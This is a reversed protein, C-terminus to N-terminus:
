FDMEEGDGGEQRQERDPRDGRKNSRRLQYTFGLTFTRPRWQFEGESIFDDTITISQWRRTNLVDSVSLTLNGKKNFLDKSIGADMIYLAKTRGQPREMPARYFFSSQASLGELIKFQMNTRANWTYTDSYLDLTEFGELEGGKIIQRYFNFNTNTSWWDAIDANFVMEFGYANETALNMPMSVQVPFSDTQITTTVREIIDTTHRYYISSTISAFSLHRLYGLEVSNTFEPTLDPNGARVSYKDEQSIFPNLWRGGPRRIRRSYSWEVSSSETLAYTFHTSPFLSLYRNGPNDQDSELLESNIDSYEARLGVQYSFRGPKNGLIGYAAYVNEKYLFSNSLSDLFVWNGDKVQNVGFDNINEELSARLGAEWRGEDGFPHTYDTQFLYSEESEDTVTNQRLFINETDGSRRERITTEELETERSTQFTATLLQGERDFTRRYNLEVEMTPETEEEIADRISSGLLVRNINYNRYTLEEISEGTSARYLFSASLTNFENLFFDSGFRINNSLGQRNNLNVSEIYKADTLPDEVTFYTREQFGESNFDYYRIGYNVFLNYWKRRYNFNVSAGYNSPYGVNASISGNMGDRREKKLIINIIGAVGEAQYRASPNTIVEVREIIDAPLSRLAEAGSIGVLGSPKGDILIQVNQSGRLAVNGEVDVTVSPINDLIDSASGGVRALSEGVNFIKKDLALQMQSKQATVEVESLTQADSVLGISGLEAVPDSTTLVINEQYRSGFSLFQVLAYYRGFPANLIFEGETNTTTGTVLSSDAQNFLSVTAYELPTKREADTVVGRITGGEQQALLGTLSFLCLLAILLYIKKMNNLKAAFNPFM